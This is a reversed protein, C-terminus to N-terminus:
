FDGRRCIPVVPLIESSRDPLDGAADPGDRGSVLPAERDDRVNPRPIRHVSIHQSVLLVNAYPLVTHDRRGSAPTL